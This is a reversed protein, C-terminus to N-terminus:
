LPFLDPVLGFDNTACYGGGDSQSFQNYNDACLSSAAKYQALRARAVSLDHELQFMQTQLLAIAGLCGYVPDQLRAEAEFLLSNVTEERHEEPVENLIKSVNSAGFVKHVNAFKRLENARFYPAFICSLSCRRKLLKCAACSSSSRPENNYGKKM